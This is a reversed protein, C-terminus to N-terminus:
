LEHMEVPKGSRASTLAALENASIPFSDDGPKLPLMRAQEGPWSFRSKNEDDAVIYRVIRGERTSATIAAVQEWLLTVPRNIVRMSLGAATARIETAGGTLAVRLLAVGLLGYLCLFLSLATAAPSPVTPLWPPLPHGSAPAVTALLALAPVVNVCLVLGVPALILRARADMGSRLTYTGTPSLPPLAPAAAYQTYQRQLQRDYAMLAVVAIVLAGLSAAVAVNLVTSTTLPLLLAACAIALTLVGILLLRLASGSPRHRASQHTAGAGPLRLAKALTRPALDTRAAILNVVAQLRAAMEEPAMEHPAFENYKLPNDQWEAIHRSGYLRFRRRGFGTAGSGDVEFLRMEIWPVFFRRGLQTRCEIGEDTATVGFPRGFYTPVARAYFVLLAIVIAGLCVAGIVALRQAWTATFIRQPDQVIAVGIAILLLLPVAAQVVALLVHLPRELIRIGRSASWLLSLPQMSVDPANAPKPTIRSLPLADLNGSLALKRQHYRMRSRVATIVLMLTLVLLVGGLATALLLDTTYSSGLEQDLPLQQDLYIVPAVIAGVGAALGLLAEVWWYWEPLRM